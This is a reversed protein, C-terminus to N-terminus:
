ISFKYSLHGTQILFAPTCFIQETQTTAIFPTNFLHEQHARLTHEISPYSAVSTPLCAKFISQPHTIRLIPTRYPQQHISSPQRSSHPYTSSITMQSPAIRVSPLHNKTLNRTLILLSPGTHAALLHMHSICSHITYWRYTPESLTHMSTAPINMPHTCRVKHTHCVFSSEM